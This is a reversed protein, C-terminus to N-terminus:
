RETQERRPSRRPQEFEQGPNGVCPAWTRLALCLVVLCEMGKRIIQGSPSQLCGEQLCGAASLGEGVEIVRKRVRKAKGEGSTAGLTPEIGLDQVTMAGFGNGGHVEPDKQVSAELM